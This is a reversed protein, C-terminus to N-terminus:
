LRDFQELCGFNDYMIHRAGYTTLPQKAKNVTIAADVLEQLAKLVRYFRLARFVKGCLKLDCRFHM